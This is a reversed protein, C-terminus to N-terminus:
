WSGRYRHAECAPVIKTTTRHRNYGTADGGCGLLFGCGLGKPRKVLVAWEAVTTRREGWGYM